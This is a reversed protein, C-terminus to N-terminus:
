AADTASSAAESLEWADLVALELNQQGMNDSMRAGVQLKDILADVLAAPDESPKTNLPAQQLVRMLLRQQARRLAQLAHDRLPEQAATATARMLVRELGDIGAQRRLAMGLNLFQPLSMSEPRPVSLSAFLFDAISEIAEVTECAQTFAEPLGKTEFSSAFAPVLERMADPQGFLMTLEALASSERLQQGPVSLMGNIVAKQLARTHQDVAKSVDCPVQLAHTDLADFVPALNLAAWAQAWACIVDTEKVSRSRALETILVPGQECWIKGVRQNGCAIGQFM